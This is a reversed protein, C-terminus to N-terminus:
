YRFSFSPLPGRQIDTGLALALYHVGKYITKVYLAAAPYSSLGILFCLCTVPFAATECAAAVPKLYAEVLLHVLQQYKTKRRLLHLTHECM